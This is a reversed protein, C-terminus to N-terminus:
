VIDNNGDGGPMMSKIYLHGGIGAGALVILVVLSVILLKKM